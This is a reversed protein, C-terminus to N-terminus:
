NRRESIFALGKRVMLNTHQLLYNKLGYIENLIEIFNDNAGASDM